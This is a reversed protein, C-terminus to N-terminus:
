NGIAGCGRIARIPVSLHAESGASTAISGIRASGRSGHNKLKWAVGDFVRGLRIRGSKVQRVRVVGSIVLAPRVGTRAGM